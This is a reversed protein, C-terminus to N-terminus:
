RLTTPCSQTGSLFVSVTTTDIGVGKAQVNHAYRVITVALFEKLPIVLLIYATYAGMRLAQGGLKVLNSHPIITLWAKWSRSITIFFFM